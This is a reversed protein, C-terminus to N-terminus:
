KIKRDVTSNFGYNMLFLDLFSRKLCIDPGRAEKACKVLSTILKSCKKLRCKRAFFVETSPYWVKAMLDCEKTYCSGLQMNQM